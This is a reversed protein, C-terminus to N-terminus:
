LASCTTPLRYLRCSQDVSLWWSMISPMKQYTKIGNNFRVEIHVEAWRKYQIATAAVQSARSCICLHVITALGSIQKRESARSSAAKCTQKWNRYVVTNPQYAAQSNM